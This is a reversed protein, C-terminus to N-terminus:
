LGWRVMEKFKRGGRRLLSHKKKHAKRMEQDLQDRAVDIAAEFAIETAEARYLAGGVTINVEIRAVAASTHITLKEFEVEVRIVDTGAVYKELTTFKTAAYTRTKESVTVNTQKIVFNQLSMVLYKYSQTMLSRFYKEVVRIAM